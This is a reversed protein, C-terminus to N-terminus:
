LQQERLQKAIEKLRMDLAANLPREEEFFAKNAQFNDGPFILKFHGKRKIEEEAERIIQREKKNLRALAQQQQTGGQLSLDFMREM